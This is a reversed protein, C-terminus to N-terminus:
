FGTQCMETARLVRPGLKRAQTGKKEDTKGTKRSNQDTDELIAAFGDFARSDGRLLVGIM